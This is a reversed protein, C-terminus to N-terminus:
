CHDRFGSVQHEGTLVLYGADLESCSAQNIRAMKLPRDILGWVMMEAAQETGNEHWAAAEYNRWHAWGRLTQFEAKRGATVHHDIWAHATEHLIMVQTPFSAEAACVEIVSVGDVRHHMGDRGRCPGRDGGHHVFRMPPLELNAQDFLDIAWEAMAALEGPVDLLELPAREAVLALPEIPDVQRPAEATGSVLLGFGIVIAPM